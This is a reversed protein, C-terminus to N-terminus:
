PPTEAGIEKRSPTHLARRNHARLIAHEPDNGINAFLIETRADQDRL